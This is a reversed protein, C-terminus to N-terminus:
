LSGGGRMNHRYYILSCEYFLDCQLSIKILPYSATLSVLNPPNVVSTVRHQGTPQLSGYVGDKQRYDFAKRIGIWVPSPLFSM